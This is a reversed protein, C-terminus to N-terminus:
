RDTYGFKLLCHMNVMYLQDLIYPFRSKEIALCCSAFAQAVASFAGRHRLTTLEDFCLRTLEEFQEPPIGVFREGDAARETAKLAVV